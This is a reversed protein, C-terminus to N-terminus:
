SVSLFLRLKIYYFLISFFQLNGEELAKNFIRLCVSSFEKSSDTSLKKYLVSFLLANDIKAIATLLCQLLEHNDQRIAWHFISADSTISVLYLTNSSNLHNSTYFFDGRNILSKAIAFNINRTVLQFVCDQLFYSKSEPNDFQQSDIYDHLSQTFDSNIKGQGIDDIFRNFDIGSGITFSTSHVDYTTEFAQVPIPSPIPNANTNAVENAVFSNQSNLIIRNASTHTSLVTCAIQSLSMITGWSDLPIKAADMPLSKLKAIRLQLTHADPFELDTDVLINVLPILPQRSAIDNNVLALICKITEAITNADSPFYKYTYLSLYIYGIIKPLTDESLCLSHLHEFIEAPPLVNNDFNTILANYLYPVSVNFQQESIFYPLQKEQPPNISLSATEQGPQIDQEGTMIVM